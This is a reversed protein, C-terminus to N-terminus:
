KEKGKYETCYDILAQRWHRLPAIKNSKLPTSRNKLGASPFTTHSVPTIATDLGMIQKLENILEYLSAQGENAVHYLGFPSQEEFLNKLREAVDKSYSPSAIIDDSIRLNKNGLYIQELMKEVFQHKKGPTIGFQTSIRAIYYRKAIASIFCDGGYKTFGYMNIPDAQSDELYYDASNGSFVADSSLHILLFDHSISLKALQKPFLTNIQLAQHPDAESADIGNFAVANIVIDPKIDDINKQVQLSERVDVQERKPTVVTYSHCFANYIATGLKGSGGFLLVKRQYSSSM